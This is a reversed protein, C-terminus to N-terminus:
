TYNCSVYARANWGAGRVIFCGRRQLLTREFNFQLVDRPLMNERLVRTLHLVLLSPIHSPDVEVKDVKWHLM